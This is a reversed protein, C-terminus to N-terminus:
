GVPVHNSPASVSARYRGPSVGTLARFERSLHAQDSYGVEAAVEALSAGPIREVARQLRLVRCYVKPTLGVSHRFLEIFRRHSCEVENVVGSIDDTNAFARLAHEVAPHLAGGRARAMLAEEFLALRRHPDHTEILRERLASAFSGYVAELPTHRGALEIASVGLLPAAAGPRLQAGVSSTPQSVDRVYANARAGGIVAYGVTSARESDVHNFLRLPRDLRIVVHMAGTPLVLERAGLANSENSAWLRAVFPSLERRPARVIM